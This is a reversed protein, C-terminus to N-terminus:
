RGYTSSGYGSMTKRSLKRTEPDLLIRTFGTIGIVAMVLGAVYKLFDKRDMEKQVLSDIQQKITPM